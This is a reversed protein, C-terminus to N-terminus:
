LWDSHPRIWMQSQYNARAYIPSPVDEVPKIETENFWERTLTDTM